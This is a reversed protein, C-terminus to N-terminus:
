AHAKRKTAARKAAVRSKRKKWWVYLGTVIMQVTAIGLLFIIASGLWGIIHGSHLPYLLRILKLRLSGGYPNEVELFAGSDGDVYYYPPGYGRYNLVGNHTFALGYANWQPLYVMTAPRWREGARAAYREALAGARAFDIKPMRNGGPYPPNRDFMTPASPTLRDVMPKYVESYFNLCVSTLALPLIGILLWLGSSRHLDLLLRPIASSFRFRWARKWNKWFPRRQPWTLYVGVVAGILWAVAVVGMLWRGITGGFLNEHLMQVGAMFGRRDWSPETTRGGVMHGDTRDLFLERYSLHPAGPAPTVKVVINRDNPVNVPFEIVRIAPHDRQFAQVVTMPAPANSVPVHDFLDRNLAHDIPSTFCLLCGTLAAVLLFASATLGLWRHITVWYQM